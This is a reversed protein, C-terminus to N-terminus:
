AGEGRYRSPAGAGGPVAGDPGPPPAADYLTPHLWPTLAHLLAAEWSTRRAVLGRSLYGVAGLRTKTNPQGSLDDIVAGLEEGAEVRAAVPPPLLTGAGRGVGCRGDRDVAVCWGGVLLGWPTPVVGDEMGLGLDAGAAELAGRARALAGRATEEDGRPQDPVGSAVAVAVVEAAPQLRALVARAAEVKAPNTSGVAVRRIGALPRPGDGDAWGPDHLALLLERLRPPLPQPRGQRDVYVVADEAEAVLAGDAPRRIRHRLGFSTRGVRVPRAEVELVDDFRAPAHYTCSVHAIVPAGDPGGPALGARRFLEVRALELYTMFSGYYVIGLADTEAMRVRLRVRVPESVGGCVGAPPPGPEAPWGCGM